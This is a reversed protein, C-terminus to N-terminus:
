LMDTHLSERCGSTRPTLMRTYPADVDPHLIGSSPCTESCKQKSEVRKRRTKQLFPGYTSSIVQECICISVSGAVKLVIGIRRKLQYLHSVPTICSDPM